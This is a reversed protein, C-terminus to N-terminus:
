ENSRDEIEDIKVNEVLVRKASRDFVNFGDETAKAVVEFAASIAIQLGHCYDLESIEALLGECIEVYADATVGWATDKKAKDLKESYEEIIERLNM